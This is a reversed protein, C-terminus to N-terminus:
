LSFSPVCPCMWVCQFTYIVCMYPQMFFVNVYQACVNDVGMCLYVCVCGPTPIFVCTGPRKRVGVCVSVCVNRSELECRTHKCAAMVEHDPTLCRFHDSVPGVFPRALGSLLYTIFRDWMLPVNWQLCARLFSRTTADRASPFIASMGAARWLFSSRYFFAQSNVPTQGSEGLADPPKLWLLACNTLTLSISLLRSSPNQGPHAVHSFSQSLFLPHQALIQIMSFIHKGQARYLSIMILSILETFAYYM